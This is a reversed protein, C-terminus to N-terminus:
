TLNEYESRLESTLSHWSHQSIVYERANEGIQRHVDPHDLLHELRDALAQPDRMPVIFGTREDEIVSAVGGSPTAVVPLGYAMAELVVNPMGEGVTSPLVFITARRYYAEVEEPPVEGVFTVDVEREKAQHILDERRDGDGVIVLDVDSGIMDVADILYQLGKKPALRGIFLLTSGDPSTAEEPIDVANGVIGVDIHTDSFYSRIDDEIEQSQVLIRTDGFVRRIMWRKWNVHRMEYFDNGRVWAFYPIKTVRNVMLGLFGIPYVTMCQLLDLKRSYWILAFFSFAIFTLDSVFPSVGLQPIRVVEFPLEEDDHHGYRKTFVVVEDETEALAAAMRKTQTQLGGISDPPFEKVVIGIRM